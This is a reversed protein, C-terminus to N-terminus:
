SRLLHYVEHSGAITNDAWGVCVCVGGGGEQSLDLVGPKM